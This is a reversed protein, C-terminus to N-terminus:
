THNYINQNKWNNKRTKNGVLIGLVISPAGIMGLIEEMAM